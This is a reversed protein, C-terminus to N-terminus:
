WTESSLAMLVIFSVPASMFALYLSVARPPSATLTMSHQSPGSRGEPERGEGGGPGGRHSTGPSTGAPLRRSRRDSEPNEPSTRRARGCVWVARCVAGSPAPPVRVPKGSPGALGQGGQGEHRGSRCPRDGANRSNPPLAGGLPM